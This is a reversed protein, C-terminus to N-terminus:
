LNILNNEKVKKKKRSIEYLIGIIAVTIVSIAIITVVNKEVVALGLAISLAVPIIFTLTSVFIFTSFKIKTLGSAYSVLDHLTYLLLRAYLLGKWTEIKSLMREMIDLLRESFFLRIVKRGYRRALLFAIASGVIDGIMSYLFAKWFGFLPGAIFYIPGGVIPAIVITAAKLIIFVIPGSPGLSEIYSQLEGLNIFSGIIFLLVMVVILYLIGQIIERRQIGELKKEQDKPIIDTIETNM